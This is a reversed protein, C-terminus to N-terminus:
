DYVDLHLSRNTLVQLVLAVVGRIKQEQVGYRAENGYDIQMSKLLVRV